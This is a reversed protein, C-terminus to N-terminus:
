IGTSLKREKEHSSFWRGKVCVIVNKRNHYFLKLTFADFKWGIANELKPYNYYINFIQQGLVLIDVRKVM